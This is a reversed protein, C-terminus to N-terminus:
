AYSGKGFRSGLVLDNGESIKRVLAPIASAPYQGDADTHVIVDAKHEVCRRMEHSFTEALGLNRKNRYVVAGAQKAVAVTGDTSGDDVVIIESDYPMKKLVEKIEKLVPGITGAENYAPITVIVKM